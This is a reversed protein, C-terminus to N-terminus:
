FPTHKNLLSLYTYNKTQYSPTILTGRVKFLEVNSSSNELKNPMKPKCQKYDENWPQYSTYEEIHQKPDGPNVNKNMKPEETLSTNNSFHNPSLAKTSDPRLSPEGVINLTYTLLM